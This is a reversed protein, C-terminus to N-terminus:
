LGSMKESIKSGNRVRRNKRILSTRKLRVKNRASSGHLLHLVGVYRNAFKKYSQNVGKILRTKCMKNEDILVLFKM